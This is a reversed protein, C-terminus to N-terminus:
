ACQSKVGLLKSIRGLDYQIVRNGDLLSNEHVWSGDFVGRDSRGVSLAMDVQQVTFANGSARGQRQDIQVIVGLGGDLAIEALSCREHVGMSHGIPM